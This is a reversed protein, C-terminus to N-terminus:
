HRRTRGCCGLALLPTMALLMTLMRSGERVRAEQRRLRGDGYGTFGTVKGAADKVFFLRANFFTLYFTTENEPLLERESGDSLVMLKDGKRIMEIVPGMEIQYRGVYSDLIKPDIKLNRDPRGLRRGNARIEPM